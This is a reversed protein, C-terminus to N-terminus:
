AQTQAVGGGFGVNIPRNHRDGIRHISYPGYLIATAELGM